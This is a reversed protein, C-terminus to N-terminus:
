IPSWATLGPCPRVLRQVQGPGCLPMAPNVREGAAGAPSRHREASGDAPPRILPRTFDPLTIAAGAPRGLMPALIRRPRRINLRIKVWGGRSVRDHEFDEGGVGPEHGDGLDSQHGEDTDHTDAHVHAPPLDAQGLKVEFEFAVHELAAQGGLLNAGDDLGSTRGNGVVVGPGAPIMATLGLAPCVFSRLRVVASCGVPAPMRTPRPMCTKCAAGAASRPREAAQRPTVNLSQIIFSSPCTQSSTRYGTLDIAPVTASDANRPHCPRSPSRRKAKRRKPSSLPKGHSVALRM